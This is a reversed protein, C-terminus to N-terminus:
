SKTAKQLFPTKVEDLKHNVMGLAQAMIDVEWEDGKLYKKLDDVWNKLETLFVDSDDKMSNDYVQLLHSVWKENPNNLLNVLNNLKCTASDEEWGGSVRLPFRDKDKKHLWLNSHSGLKVVEYDDPVADMFGDPRKWVVNM